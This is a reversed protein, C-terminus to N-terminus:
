LAFAWKRTSRQATSMHLSHATRRAFRLVYSCVSCTLAFDQARVQEADLVKGLACWHEGEDAAGGIAGFADAFTKGTDASEVAALMAQHKRIGACMKLVYAARETATMSAWEGAGNHWQARAANVADTVDEATGRPFEHLLQETAPHFSAFNENRNPTKFEGGIYLHNFAPHRLHRQVEAITPMPLTPPSFSLAAGAAESPPLATASPWCGPALWGESEAM